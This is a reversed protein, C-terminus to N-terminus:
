ALVGMVVYESGFRQVVVRTAGTITVHNPLKCPLGVSTGDMIVLLPSESQVNGVFQNVQREKALMEQVAKLIDDEYAM